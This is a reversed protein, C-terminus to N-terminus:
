IYRNQQHQLCMRRSIATERSRTQNCKVSSNSLWFNALLMVEMEIQQFDPSLQSWPNTERTLCHWYPTSGRSELSCSNSRLSEMSIYCHLRNQSPPSQMFSPLGLEPNSARRPKITKFTNETRSFTEKAKKVKTKNM